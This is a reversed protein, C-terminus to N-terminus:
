NCSTRAPQAMDLLDVITTYVDPIIKGVHASIDLLVSPTQPRM